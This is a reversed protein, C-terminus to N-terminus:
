SRDDSPAFLPKRSNQGRTSLHGRLKLFTFRSLPELSPDGPALVDDRRERGDAKEAIRVLLQWAYTLMREM